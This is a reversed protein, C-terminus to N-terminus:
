CGEYGLNNNEINILLSSLYLSTLHAWKGSSLYRCGEDGIENNGKNSLYTCLNLLSNQSAMLLHM